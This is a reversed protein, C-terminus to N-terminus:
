KSSRRRPSRITRRRSSTATMSPATADPGTLRTVETAPLRLLHAFVSDRLRLQVREAALGALWGSWAMAVAGAAAVALWAGALIWFNALHRTELVHSTMAEFLAVSALEAGLLILGLLGSSLLRLRDGATYPWFERFMKGITGSAM